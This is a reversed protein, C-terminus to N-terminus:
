SRTAPALVLHAVAHTAVEQTYTGSFVGLNTGRLIDRVAMSGAQALLRQGREDVLGAFDLTVNATSTGRNLLVATHRGGSLPGTYVEGGAATALCQDSLQSRLQGPKPLHDWAFQSSNTSWNCQDVEPNAGEVELCGELACSSGNVCKGTSGSPWPSRVAAANAVIQQSKDDASPRSVWYQRVDSVECPLLSVCWPWRDALWCLAILLQGHNTCDRSQRLLQFLSLSLSLSLIRVCRGTHSAASRTERHSPGLMARTHCDDFFYLNARQGRTTPSAGALVTACAGTIHPVQTGTHTITVCAEGASVGQTCKGAAAPSMM